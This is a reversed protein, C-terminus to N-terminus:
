LWPPHIRLRTPSSVSSHYSTTSVVHSRTESTLMNASDRVGVSQQHRLRGNSSYGAEAVQPNVAFLPSNVGPLPSNM